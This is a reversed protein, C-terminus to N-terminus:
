AGHDCSRFVGLHVILDSPLVGRSWIVGFGSDELRRSITMM